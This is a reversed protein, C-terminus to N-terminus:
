AGREKTRRKEAKTVEREWHARDEGTPIFQGYTTLTLMPTSHGLQRQVLAIPVGARLRMVAWHHRAAHLKLRRSLKLKEKVIWRQWQNVNWPKWTEPFLRATPLMRRVYEALIPWAWDAVVAVRDRTHAKTGAARIERSAEWVDGRSLRLATSIEIGTGYLVAFLARRAPTPQADVIRKVEGLEYFQVPHKQETPRTVAHMPNAPFLGHVTTLSEFFLSWASHVRRLTNRKGPYAALRETLWATTVQSLPCPTGQPLLWRVHYITHAAYGAGVGRRHTAHWRAVMPELDVDSLLRRMEVPNYRTSVWLDYLRGLLVERTGRKARLVPELLDWARHEVALSQWMAEIRLALAKGAPTFPAGTQLQKYRGNPLRAQFAYTTSRPRKFVM